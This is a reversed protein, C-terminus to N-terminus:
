LTSAISGAAYLGIDDGLAPRQMFKNLADDSDIKPHV